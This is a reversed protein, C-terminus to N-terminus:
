SKRSSYQSDIMAKIESITIMFAQVDRNYYQEEKPISILTKHAKLLHKRGIRLRGMNAYTIALDLQSVAVHYHNKGFIKKNIKLADKQFVFALQPAGLENYLKGLSTQIQAVVRHKGGYTKVSAPLAELLLKLAKSPEKLSHYVAGLNMLNTIVEPHEKPYTKEIVRAVDELLTKAEQHEGLNTQAIALNSMSKLVYPNDGSFSNRAASLAEVLLKKAKKYEGQDVYCTALNSKTQIVTPHSDDFRKINSELVKEMLRIAEDVKGLASYVSALNSQNRSISYHGEGFIEKEKDIVSKFIKEAEFYKGNEFYLVALNSRRLLIRSHNDPLIREEIQLCTSLLKHAEKFDGLKRCVIALDSKMTLTLPHENSLNKECASVSERLLNQSKRYLGLSQYLNGLNHKLITVLYSDNNQFHHIINDGFSIYEYKEIPSDKSEDFHTLEAISLILSEIDEEEVTLEKNVVDKVLPHLSYSNKSEEKHFYGLEFLDELYGAFQESWELSDVRILKVLFDYTLSYGPFLIFQKLIWIENQSLAKIDFIKSLYHQINKVRLNNSHPVSVNTVYNSKIADLTGKFTWNSKKAAKALLEITLTHLAVKLVLEKIQDETFLDCHARFLDIAEKLLLVEINLNSFPELSERSIVILHWNPAKPLKDYDKSVTDEANDIVMLNSGELGQLASLCAEYKEKGPLYETRLYRNLTYTSVITSRFDGQVSIWVIHDYQEYHEEIYGGIISTKGIGGMGSILIPDKTNVLHKRIENVEKNRGIINKTRRIPTLEKPLDKSTSISSRMMDLIASTSKEIGSLKINVNNLTEAIEFIEAKYDEKIALERLDDDKRIKDELIRLFHEIQVKTPAIINPNTSLEKILRDEDLLFENAKFFRYLLLEEVIIQSHYFPFKGSEDDIPFQDEYETLTIELIEKLALKYTKPNKKFVHDLGNNLAYGVIQSSLFTAIELYM